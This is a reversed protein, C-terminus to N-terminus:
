HGEEDVTELDVHERVHEVPDPEFSSREASPDDGALADGLYIEAFHPCTGDARLPPTAFYSQRLPTPRARHRYCADKQACGEGHCMAIDPV